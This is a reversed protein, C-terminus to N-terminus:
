NCAIVYSCVGGANFTGYDYFGCTVVRNSDAYAYNGGAYDPRPSPHPNAADSASWTCQGATSGSPLPIHQNHSIFGTLVKSGGGSRWVGSQCSLVVGIANKALLTQDGCATGEVALGGISVYDGTSLRGTATMAGLSTIQGGVLPGGTSLGKDNYIRM